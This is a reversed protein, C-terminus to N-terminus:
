SMIGSVILAGMVFLLVGVLKQVGTITTKQILQKGIFAGLFAGIIGTILLGSGETLSETLNIAKKGGFQMLGLYVPIRTFDVILSIANSTGVFQEKTIDVKALFAARFAGQHGSVGGFFGSLMGGVPLYKPDVKFDRFRKSLEFWAFFIMLSGIVLNMITIEYTNEGLQYSYVAESSSFQSLLYSGAFALVM